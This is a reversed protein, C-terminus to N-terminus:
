GTPTGCDSTHVHLDALKTIMGRVFWGVLWGALWGAYSCRTQGRKCSSSARNTVNSWPDSIDRCLALPLIVM